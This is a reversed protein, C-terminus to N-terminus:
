RQVNATGMKRREISRWSSGGAVNITVNAKDPTEAEKWIYNVQASTTLSFMMLASVSLILLLFQLQSSM